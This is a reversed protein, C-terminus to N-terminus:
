RQVSHSGEFIRSVGQFQQISNMDSTVHVANFITHMHNIIRRCVSVFTKRYLAAKPLYVNLAYKLM